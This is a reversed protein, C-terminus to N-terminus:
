SLAQTVNVGVCDLSSCRPHEAAGRTLRTQCPKGLTAAPNWCCGLALCLGEGVGTPGCEPVSADAEGTGPCVLVARPCRLARQDGDGSSSSSDVAYRPAQPVELWPADAAITRVTRLSRLKEPMEGEFSNGAVYLVRLLPCGELAVPLTGTLNNEALNLAALRRWGGLGDPVTGTLGNGELSLLRVTQALESRTFNEPLGGELRNRPLAVVEVGTGEADCGVGHWGCHHGAGGWGEQHAWRVGGTAEYLALLAERAGVRAAVDLWGLSRRVGEAAAYYCVEYLGAGPLASVRWTVQPVLLRSRAPCDAATVPLYRRPRDRSVRASVPPHCAPFGEAPELPEAASTTAAAPGDGGGCGGTAAHPLLYLTDTYVSYLGGRGGGGVHLTVAGGEVLSAAAAEEGEGGGVGTVNYEQSPAPTALVDLEGLHVWRPASPHGAHYYCVAYCGAEAALRDTAYTMGTANAADETENRTVTLNLSRLAYGGDYGCWADVGRLEFADKDTLGVGGEFLLTLAEGAVASGEAAGVASVLGVRFAVPPSADPPAYACNTHLGSFRCCDCSPPAARPTADGFVSADSWWVADPTVTANGGTALAHQRWTPVQCLGLSGVLVPPSPGGAARTTAAMGVLEGYPFSTHAEDSCARCCCYEPCSAHPSAPFTPWTERGAAFPTHPPFLCVAAVIFLLLPHPHTTSSSHRLCCSRQPSHMRSSLRAGDM